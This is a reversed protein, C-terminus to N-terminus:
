KVPQGLYTHEKSGETAATFQKVFIQTTREHTTRWIRSLRVVSCIKQGDTEKSKYTDRSPRELACM